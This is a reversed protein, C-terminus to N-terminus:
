RLSALCDLTAEEDMIPAAVFETVSIEIMQEIGARVGAVELRQPGLAAV